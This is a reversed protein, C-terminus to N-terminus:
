VTESQLIVAAVSKQWHAEAAAKAEDLTPYNQFVFEDNCDWLLFDGSGRTISYKGGIGNAICVADQHGLDSGTDNPKRWRLPKIQM